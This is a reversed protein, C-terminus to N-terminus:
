SYLPISWLVQGFPVILCDQQAGKPNILLLQTTSVTDFIMDYLLFNSNIPNLVGRICCELDDSPLRCVVRGTAVRHFLGTSIRYLVRNPILEPVAILIYSCYFIEIVYISQYVIITFVDYYVLPYLTPPLRCVVSEGWSGTIFLQFIPLLERTVHLARDTLYCMFYLYNVPLRCFPSLRCVASGLSGDFYYDNSCQFSIALRIM